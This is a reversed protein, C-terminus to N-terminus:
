EHHEGHKIQLLVQKLSDIQREIGADFVGHESKILCGGLRLTDDAVIRLNKCNRVDITLQGQQLLALDKPHLSLEINQKHNLQDIIQTIQQGIADKNHQQNVFFQGVITLVIDAIENSLQTRNEKIAASIGELLQQLATLKDNMQNEGQVIGDSLGQQFGANYAAEKTKERLEKLEDERIECRAQPEELTVLLPSEAKQQGIHVFEDSMIVTKFIKGM